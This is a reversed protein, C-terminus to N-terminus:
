IATFTDYKLTLSVAHIRQRKNYLNPKNNYFTESYLNPGLMPSILAKMCALLRYVYMFYM